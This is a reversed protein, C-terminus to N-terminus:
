SSATSRDAQAQKTSETENTGSEFYKMAQLGPQPQANLDRFYKKMHKKPAKNVLKQKIKRATTNTKKNKTSTATSTIAQRTKTHIDDLQKKLSRNLEIHKNAQMAKQLSPNASNQQIIETTIGQTTNHKKLGYLCQMQILFIFCYEYGSIIQFIQHTHLMGEKFQQRFPYGLIAIM